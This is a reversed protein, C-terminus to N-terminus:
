SGLQVSKTGCVGERGESGSASNLVLHNQNSIGFLETKVAHPHLWLLSAMVRAERSLVPFLEGSNGNRCTYM